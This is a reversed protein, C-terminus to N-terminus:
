QLKMELQIPEQRYARVMSKWRVHKKLLADASILGELGYLQIFADASDKYDIGDDYRKRDMYFHLHADFNMLLANNVATEGTLPLFNYQTFDKCGPVKDNVLVMLNGERPEAGDPRKTLKNIITHNVLSAAPFRVVDPMGTSYRSRAYAALYPKVYINLITM